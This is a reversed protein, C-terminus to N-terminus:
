KQDVIKYKESSIWLFFNNSNKKKEYNTIWYELFM